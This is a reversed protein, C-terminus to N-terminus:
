CNLITPQTSQTYWSSQSPSRKKAEQLKEKLVSIETDKARRVDDVEWNKQEIVGRIQQLEERCGRLVLSLSEVTASLQEITINKRNMAQEHLDLLRQRERCAEEEYQGKEQLFCNMIATIRGSFEQYDRLRVQASELQQQPSHM